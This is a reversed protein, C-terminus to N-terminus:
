GIGLPWIGLMSGPASATGIARAVPAIFDNRVEPQPKLRPSNMFPLSYSPDPSYGLLFVCGAGFSPVGFAM